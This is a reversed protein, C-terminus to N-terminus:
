LKNAPAAVRKIQPGNTATDVIWWCQDTGVEKKLCYEAAYFDSDKGGVIEKQKVVFRMKPPAWECSTARVMAEKRAAFEAQVAKMSDRELRWAQRNALQGTIYVNGADHREACMITSAPWLVTVTDGVAAAEAANKAEPVGDDTDCGAVALCILPIAIAKAFHRM